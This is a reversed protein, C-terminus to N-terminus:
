FARVPRVYSAFGKDSPAPPYDTYFDQIWAENPSVESSSWYGHFIFPGVAAKHVFLQRLEDRSPLFWDSKGGGAYAHAAAAADANCGAALMAATNAAGAGLATSQTGPLSNTVDPCWNLNPDGGPGNWTSPAAELYRGWSQKRPAVYFVRGRGPGLDGIVCAGGKACPKTEKRETRRCSGTRSYRALGTAKSVCKVKATPVPTADAATSAAIGVALGSAVIAFISLMVTTFRRYSHTM